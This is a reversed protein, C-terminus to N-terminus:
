RKKDEQLPPAKRNKWWDWVTHEVNYQILLWSPLESEALEDPWKLALVGGSNGKIKQEQEAHFSQAGFASFSSVEFKISGQQPTGNTYAIKLERGEGIEAYAIFNTNVEIRRGEKPFPVLVHSYDKRCTSRLYDQIDPPPELLNRTEGIFVAKVPTYASEADKLADMSLSFGASPRYTIEVPWSKHPFELIIADVGTHEKAKSVYHLRVISQGKGDPNKRISRKKMEEKLEAVRKGGRVLAIRSEVEGLLFWNVPVDVVIENKKFRNRVYYPRIGLVDKEAIKWLDSVRVDGVYYLKELSSTTSKSCVYALTKVLEDTGVTASEKLINKYLVRARLLNIEVPIPNEQVLVEGGDFLDRYKTLRSEYRRELNGILNRLVERATSDDGLVEYYVSACFYSWDPYRDRMNVYRIRELCDKVEAKDPNGLAVMATIKAIAVNAAMPDVKVLGRNVKEFRQAAALADTWEGSEVATTALYFWFMPFSAYHRKMADTRLNDYIRRRNEDKLCDILDKVEDGTVIDSGNLNLERAFKNEAAVLEDNYSFVSELKKKDFDFKYQKSKSRLEDLKRQYEVFSGFSEKVLTGGADLVGLAAGHVGGKAAKFTEFGSKVAEPASMAVKFFLQRRESMREDEINEMYFAYEDENMKLDKLTSLAKQVAVMMEDSPIKTIDVQSLSLRDYEEQVAVVNHYTKLVSYLYNLHNIFALTDKALEQRNTATANDAQELESPATSQAAATVCFFLSALITTSKM